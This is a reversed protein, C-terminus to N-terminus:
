SNSKPKTQNGTTGKTEIVYIVRIARSEDQKPNNKTPLPLVNPLLIELNGTTAGDMSNPKPTPAGGLGSRFIRRFAAWRKPAPSESQDLTGTRYPPSFM